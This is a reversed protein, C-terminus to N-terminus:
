GTNTLKHQQTKRVLTKTIWSSRLSGIYNFIIKLKDDEQRLGSDIAICVM